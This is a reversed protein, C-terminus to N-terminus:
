VRDGPREVFARTPDIGGMTEVVVDISPDGLVEEPDRTLLARDLQQVRARDTDRVLVKAIQLPAGVRTALYAANEHLLQVAGGGVTGCGLLGIRVAKM